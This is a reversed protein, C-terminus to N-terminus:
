GYVFRHIRGKQKRYEKLLEDFIPTTHQAVKKNIEEFQKKKAQITKKLFQSRIYKLRSDFDENFYMLQVKRLELDMFSHKHIVTNRDSSYKKLFADLKKVVQPVKTRAVFLNTRIVRSRVESEDVCLHFVKNILQNIRDGISQVRILYNEVNYILHEARSLGLNKKGQYRFHNLILVAQNLQNYWAILHVLSFGVAHIYYEYEDFGVDPLDVAVPNIKRKKFIENGDNMVEIYFKHNQLNQM